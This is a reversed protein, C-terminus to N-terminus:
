NMSTIQQKFILIKKNMTTATVPITHDTRPSSLLPCDSFFLNFFDYTFRKSKLETVQGTGVFIFGSRERFSNSGELPSIAATPRLTFVPPPSLPSPLPPPQSLPPPPSTQLPSPPQQTKSQLELLAKMRRQDDSTIAVVASARRYVGLELKRIAQTRFPSVSLLSAKDKPDSLVLTWRGGGGSVIGGSGTDTGGNDLGGGSAMNSSSQGAKEEWRLTAQANVAANNSDSNRKAERDGHVDDSLVVLLPPPQQPQALVVQRHAEAVIGAWLPRVPWTWFWLTSVVFQPKSDLLYHGLAQVLSSGGIGSGIGGGEGRAQAQQQNGAARLVQAKTVVHVGLAELARVHNPKAQEWKQMESPELLATYPLFSVQACGLAVLAALVDLLRTDAGHHEAYPVYEHTVL